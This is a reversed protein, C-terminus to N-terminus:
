LLSFVSKCAATHRLGVFTGTQSRERIVTAVTMTMSSASSLGTPLSLTYILRKAEQSTISNNNM